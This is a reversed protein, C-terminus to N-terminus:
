KIPPATSQFYDQCHYYLERKKRLTKVGYGFIDKYFTSTQQKPAKSQGGMAKLM